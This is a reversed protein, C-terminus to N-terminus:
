IAEYGRNCDRRNWLSQELDNKYKSRFIPDLMLKVHKWFLMEIL